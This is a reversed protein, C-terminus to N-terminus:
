AAAAEAHRARACELLHDVRRRMAHEFSHRSAFSRASASAQVLESRRRDLAAIREALAKPDNMPTAWGAGSLRLLGDMAENAYGAIPTGCAMTELYTCSPDGQPHCCVFLDARRSILPVLETQFDLVGRLNVCTALGLGQIAARLGPELTGGGCIDMTFAVGLRKLQAAVLPLHDVGKMPVLRGSFALRLPGGNLLEARRLALTQASAMEGLRVRTDFYLLPNRNVPRYAVFTPTGNCQVGDAAAVARRCRTELRTTWKERRWRLIPNATEARIIQCRTRLSYESVYVLAAGASRCVKPLHVHKDVLSALV